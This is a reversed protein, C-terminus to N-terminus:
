RPTGCGRVADGHEPGSTAKAAAAAFALAVRGVHDLLDGLTYDPCPTSAALQDDRVGRVLAALQEAAPGLEVM